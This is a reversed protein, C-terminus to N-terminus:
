VARCQLASGASVRRSCYNRCSPVSLLIGLTAMKREFHVMKLVKHDHITATPPDAFGSTRPRSLYDVVHSGVRHTTSEISSLQNLIELEEFKKIGVM